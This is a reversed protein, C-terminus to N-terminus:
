YNISPMNKYVVCCRGTRISALQYSTDSHLRSSNMQLQDYHTQWDTSILRLCDLLQSLQDQYTSIIQEEGEEMEEVPEMYELITTLSRICSSLRELVYETYSENAFSIRGGGLSSIFSDVEQFYGEWNSVFTSSSSSAM